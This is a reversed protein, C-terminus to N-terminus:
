YSEVHLSNIVRYGHDHLIGETNWHRADNLIDLNFQVIWLRSKCHNFYWPIVGVELSRESRTRDAIVRSVLTSPSDTKACYYGAWRSSGLKRSQSLYLLIYWSLTATAPGLLPAPAISLFSNLFKPSWIAWTSLISWTGLMETWEM